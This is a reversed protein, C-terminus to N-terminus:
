SYLNNENIYNYVADPLLYRVNRNNKLNERIMTASIDLQTVPVFFIKGALTTSLDSLETAHHRELQNNDLLYNPRHSVVLHTLQLIKEWQHWQSFRQYADAGMMWCLPINDGLEERLSQLTDVSYSMNKRHLEREDLVFKSENQIALKVMKSRHEASVCPEDRLPPQKAPIFRVEDLGLVDAVELAPRLHGYHIPNFTGGMLGIM